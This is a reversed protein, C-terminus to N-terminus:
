DTKASKRGDNKAEQFTKYLDVSHKVILVLALIAGLIASVLTVWSQVYQLSIGLGTTGVAIGAGFGKSEIVKSATEAIEDAHKM